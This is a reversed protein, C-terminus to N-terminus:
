ARIRRKGLSANLHLHVKMVLALQVMTPRRPYLLMLWIMIFKFGVASLLHILLELSLLTISDLACHYLPYAVLFKLLTSLLHEADAVAHGAVDEEAGAEDENSSSPSTRPCRLLLIKTRAAVCEMTLDCASLASTRGLM